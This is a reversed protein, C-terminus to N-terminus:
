CHNIGFMRISWKSWRVKYMFDLIQVLSPEVIVTVANRPAATPGDPLLSRTAEARLEAVALAMACSVHLSPHKREAIIDSLIISKNLFSPEEHAFLDIKPPFLKTLPPIRTHIDRQTAMAPLYSKEVVWIRPTVTHRHKAACIWPHLDECPICMIHIYMYGAHAYNCTHIRVYTHIYIQNCMYLITDACRGIRVTTMGTWHNIINKLIALWLGIISDTTCTSSIGDTTELSHITCKRDNEIWEISESQAQPLRTMGWRCFRTNM